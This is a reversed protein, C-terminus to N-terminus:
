SLNVQREKNLIVKGLWKVSRYGTDMPVIVRIPYGQKPQLERGNMEYALLVKVEEKLVTDLPVSVAFGGDLGIFHVFYLQPNSVKTGSELVDKLLAGSWIPKEAKLEKKASCKLDAELNHKQFKTKIDKITLSLCAMDVGELHLKYDNPELRLTKKEQLEEMKQITHRVLLKSEEAPIVGIKYQDLIEEIEKKEHVPYKEWFPEM